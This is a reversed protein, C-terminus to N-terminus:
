ASYEVFLTDDQIVVTYTTVPEFAPLTRPKGSELAFLSGHMPCEITMEDVDVEGEGLSADAHSCTDDLAYFQGDAHVVVIKHGEVVVTKASGEPIENVAAVLYTAM